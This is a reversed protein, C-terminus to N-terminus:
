PKKSWLSHGNFTQLEKDHSVFISAFSSLLDVDNPLRKVGQEYISIAEAYKQQRILCRALFIYGSTFDPTGKLVERYDKVALEYEEQEEYASSRDWYAGINKPDVELAKNYDSIAEALQGVNGRCRGRLCYIESLRHYANEM